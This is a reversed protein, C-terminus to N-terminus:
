NTHTLDFNDNTNVRGQIINNDITNQIANMEIKKGDIKIKYQQVIIKVM